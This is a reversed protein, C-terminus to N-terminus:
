GIFLSRVFLFIFLLLLENRVRATFMFVLVRSIAVIQLPFVYKARNLHRIIRINIIQLNAYETQTTGCSVSAIFFFLVGVLTTVITSCQMIWHLHCDLKSDIM